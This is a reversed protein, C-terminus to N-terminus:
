NKKVVIITGGGGFPLQEECVSYGDNSEITVIPNTNYVSSRFSLYGIVSDDNKKIELRQVISNGKSIGISSFDIDGLQVTINKTQGNTILMARDAETDRIHITPYTRDAKSPIVVEGELQFAGVDSTTSVKINEELDDRIILNFDAASLKFCFLAMGLFIGIKRESKLM